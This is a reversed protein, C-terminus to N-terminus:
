NQAVDKTTEVSEVNMNAMRCKLHMAVTLGEYNLREVTCEFKGSLAFANRGPTFEMKEVNLKIDPAHSLYKQGNFEYVARQPIIKGNYLRCELTIRQKYVNGKSDKNSNGLLTIKVLKSDFQAVYSELGKADFGLGDIRAIFGKENKIRFLEEETPFRTEEEQALAFLPLILLAFFLKRM